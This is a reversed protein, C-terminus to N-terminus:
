SDTAADSPEREDVPLRAIERLALAFFSANDMVGGPYRREITGHGRLPDHRRVTVAGRDVEVVDLEPASWREVRDGDVLEVFGDGIRARRSADRPDRVVEFFGRKQIDARARDLLFGNWAREASAAFAFDEHEIRGTAPDLKGKGRIRFLRVLGAGGYWQLDFELSGAAKEDGPKLRRVRKELSRADGFRLLSSPLRHGWAFRALGERGVYTCSTSPGNVQWAIPFAFGAVVLAGLIVFVLGIPRAIAGDVGFGDKLLWVLIAAPIVLVIAGVWASVGALLSARFFRQVVGVPDGGAELNGGASIVDGIEPPPLAFIRLGKPIAEGTHLKANEAIRM